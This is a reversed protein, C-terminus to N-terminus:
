LDKKGAAAATRAVGLAVLIGGHTSVHIRTGSWLEPICHEKASDLAADVYGHWRLTGGALVVVNPNFLHIVTAIGLGLARGADAIAALAEADKREVLTVLQQADIGLRKLLAAGGALEDLIQVGQTSMIPVGGLEGAFGQAGSLSQQNVWFSAGIATGVIVLAIHDAAGVEHRAEVLAADSDNLVCVPCASNQKVSPLWGELKPIVDCYVVKGTQDVLGPIAIGISSPAAPLEQLFSSIVMDADAGSFDPGTAVKRVNNGADTKALLLMKTGGIDIGVELAAM